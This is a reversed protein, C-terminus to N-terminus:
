DSRTCRDVIKPHILDPRDFENPFKMGRKADESLRMVVVVM